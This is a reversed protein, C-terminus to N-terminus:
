QHVHIKGRLESVTANFSHKNTLSRWNWEKIGLNNCLLERIFQSKFVANNCVYMGHIDNGYSLYPMDKEENLSLVFDMYFKSAYDKNISGIVNKSINKEVTLIHIHAHDVGCTNGNVPFAGHEFIFHDDGLLQTIKRTLVFLQRKEDDELQKMTNIHRKPLILLHHKKAIPSEGPVIPSVSPLVVFVDNEFLVRNTVSYIKKIEEDVEHDRFERCFCCNGM